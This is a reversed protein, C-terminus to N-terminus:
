LRGDRGSMKIDAEEFLVLLSVGVVEMSLSLCRRSSKAFWM